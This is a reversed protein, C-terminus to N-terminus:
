LDFSPKEAQPASSFRLEVVAVADTLAAVIKAGQEPTHAYRSLNSILRLDNLVKTVRKRALRAFKQSPTEDKPVAVRAKRAKALNDSGSKTATTKKAPMRHNEM